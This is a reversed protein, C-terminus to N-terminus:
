SGAGDASAPKRYVPIPPESKSEDFDVGDFKKGSSKLIKLLHPSVHQEKEKKKKEEKICFGGLHDSEIQGMRVMQALVPIAWGHDRDFREKSGVKRAIEKGPVFSHRFAKLYDLIGQEDTQM